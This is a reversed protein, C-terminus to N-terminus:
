IMFPHQIKDLAKEVNIVIIMHNKYKLKKHPLDCKNIQLHQILRANRCYIGSSRPKHDNQHMATNLKHINQLKRKKIADKDPKPILIISAEYFSCLLKGKRM